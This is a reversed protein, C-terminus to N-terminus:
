LIVEIFLCLMFYLIIVDIKIFLEVKIYLNVTSLNRTWRLTWSYCKKEGDWKEICFCLYAVFKIYVNYDWIFVM